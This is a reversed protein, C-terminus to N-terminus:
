PGRAPPARAPRRSPRHCNCLPGRRSPRMPRHHPCLHTIALLARTARWWFIRPLACVSRRRASVPSTRPEGSPFTLFCPEGSPACCAAAPLFRRGHGCDATVGTHGAVRAALVRRQLLQIPTDPISPTAASLSGLPLSVLPNASLVRASSHIYITHIRPPM